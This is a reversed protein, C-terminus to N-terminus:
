QQCAELAYTDGPRRLIVLKTLIKRETPTSRNAGSTPEKTTPAKESIRARLKEAGARQKLPPLRQRRAFESKKDFVILNASLHISKQRGTPVTGVVPVRRLDHQYRIDM